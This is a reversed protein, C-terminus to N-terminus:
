GIQCWCRRRLEQKQQHTAAATTVYICRQMKRVICYRMMPIIDVVLMVTKSKRGAAAVSNSTKTNGRRKTHTNTHRAHTHMDLRTLRNKCLFRNKLLTSEGKKHFFTKQSFVINQSFRHKTFFRHKLGFFTEIKHPVQEHYTYTAVVRFM